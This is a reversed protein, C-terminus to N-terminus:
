EIVILFDENDQHYIKDSHLIKNEDLVTKISELKEKCNTNGLACAFSNYKLDNEQAISEILTRKSTKKYSLSEANRIHRFTKIYKVDIPSNVFYANQILPDHYVPMNSVIYKADIMLIEYSKKADFGMNDFAYNYLQKAYDTAREIDDENWFYIRPQYNFIGDHTKPVLGHSLIETLNVVSTTHFLWKSERLLDRVDKQEYPAFWISSWMLNHEPSVAVPTEQINYFGEQKMINIIIERNKKIVPILLKIKRESKNKTKIENYAFIGLMDNAFGTLSIQWDKIGLERLRRKINNVTNESIDEFLLRESYLSIGLNERLFPMEYDFEARIIEEISVDTLESINIIPVNMDMVYNERLIHRQTIAIRNIRSAISNHIYEM